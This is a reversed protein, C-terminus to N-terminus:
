HNRWMGNNLPCRGQTAEREKRPLKTIDGDKCLTAGKVVVPNSACMSRTRKLIIAESLECGNSTAKRRDLETDSLNLFGQGSDSYEANYYM